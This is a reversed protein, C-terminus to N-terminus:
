LERPKKYSGNKVIACIEKVKTVVLEQGELQFSRADVSQLASAWLSFPRLQSFSHPSQLKQIFLFYTWDYNGLEPIEHHNIRFLMYIFLGCFTASFLRVYILSLSRWELKCQVQLVTWVCFSCFPFTIAFDRRFHTRLSHRHAEM